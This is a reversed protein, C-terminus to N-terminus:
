KQLTQIKNSTREIKGRYEDKKINKDVVDFTCLPSKGSCDKLQQYVRELEGGGSTSYFVVEPLKDRYRNLYTRVAPTISGAWVPTGIVVLDYASPDHKIEEIKTEKEKLAHYGSRIFGILPTKRNKKDIIEETDAGLGKALAKGVKETNGTRSYYVVLAKM